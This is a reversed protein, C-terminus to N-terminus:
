QRKYVKMPEGNEFFINSRLRHGEETNQDLDIFLYSYPKRTSERYINLLRSGSAPDFQKGFHIISSIDRPNKMVCIYKSNLSIDRFSKNKSFLNHVILAINCSYHHSAVSFVEATDASIEKGLDDLIITANASARVHERIWNMDCMGQIFIVGLEREMEVFLPQHVNYFYYFPGPPSSYTGSSTSILRKMFSTKGSGTAGAACLTFPCQFSFDVKKADSM